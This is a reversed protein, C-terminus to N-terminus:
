HYAKEGDDIDDIVGTLDMHGPTIGETDDDSDEVCFKRLKRAAKPFPYPNPASRKLPDTSTACVSPTNPCVNKDACDSAPGIINACNFSEYEGFHYYTHSKIEFTYTTGILSQLASPLIPADVSTDQLQEEVLSKATRKVLQKAIEDFLVVVTNMTKDTIDARIQFRDHWLMGVIVTVCPM